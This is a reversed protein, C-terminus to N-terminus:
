CRSGPPGGRASHAEGGVVLAPWATAVVREAFDAPVERATRLYDAFCSGFRLTVVM